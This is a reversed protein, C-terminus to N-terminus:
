GIVDALRDVQDLGSVAPLLVLEDCGADEYGRIFQLIAQPTTLLGEAIKEAFPGTFAYYHRLYEQGPEQTGEGLAFYGQGWVQPQGPRGCDKWAARAKAAPGAFARPPGGGHVYGDAYRAVRSFVVDTTGGVLVEPGNPQVPKPGITDGSWIRRFDMLQQTMRDSRTHFDVGATDYDGKRAGLAVGLTLRGNSLVDLTAAQKALIATNRLPSAVIMTVLRIRQTLAAVAGLSVLPDLSTYVLRDLVGLSTFPGADAKRAWELVLDRGADEFTNPLGIGVRITRSV